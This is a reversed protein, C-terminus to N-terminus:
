WIFDPHKEMFPKIIEEIASQAIERTYIAPEFTKFNIHAVGFDKSSIRKFICYKFKEDSWDIKDGDHMMSYRWLLRNLIEYLARQKMISEDKCYNGTKYLENDYKSNCIYSGLEGDVGIYYYSDGNKIEFKKTLENINETKIGLTKLQEETLDVRKNNIVIYNESM